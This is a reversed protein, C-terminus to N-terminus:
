RMRRSISAANGGGAELQAVVLDRLDHLVQVEMPRLARPRSDAICLTGVCSGDQLTLPAGAYFRIHSGGTVAPNDAFRDDILTDPVIVDANAEVAHACFSVDRPTQPDGIGVRSKFWQRDRDVLTVLAIPVDFTAAAVRTLRDFREEPETDLIDLAGLARLRQEEGAPLRPRVWRCPVRLLSARIRARAYSDTFPAILWDADLASERQVLAQDDTVIVIAPQVAQGSLADRASRVVEPAQLSPPAHEVILLSVPGRLVGALENHDCCVPASAIAEMEVAAVLRDRLAHDQVCLVITGMEANPAIDVTAAAVSSHPHSRTHSAVTEFSAGESAIVVEMGPALDLALQGVRTAIEDLAADTRLPDHHTLFVKRVGADGCVRIVYEVTSHGWGTKAAYEEALYQADHIVADADRMFSVHHRDNGGLEGRGSGLMPLHPEHDCAYVITADDAALRYGLTVAPHNLYQTTVRCDDITFSGERLDHYRIRAGLQDLTVPFYTHQMQGALTERLGQWLGQPGYVDWEWGPVFLPAFFPIGQIHDWHTHSILLHGRRPASRTLLEQGLGHAGTGCDLVVLTEQATRVEVCSTNGGYRATTPGPKALSGRTGWFTVRM